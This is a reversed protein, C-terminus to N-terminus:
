LCANTSICPFISFHPCIFLLAVCHFFTQSQFLFNQHGSGQEAHEEARSIQNERYMQALQRSFIHERRQDAEDDGGYADGNQAYGGDAVGVGVTQLRKGGLYSPFVAINEGTKQVQGDARAKGNGSAGGGGKGGADGGHQSATRFRQREQNERQDKEGHNQQKREPRCTNGDPDALDDVGNKQDEQGNQDDGGQQAGGSLDGTDRGIRGIFGASQEGAKNLAVAGHIGNGTQGEADHDNIDDTGHTHLLVAANCLIHKGGANKGTNEHGDNINGGDDHASLGTAEKFGGFVAANRQCLKGAVIQTPGAADNQGDGDGKGTQFGGDAKHCATGIGEGTHEGLPQGVPCPGHEKRYEGKHDGVKAQGLQQFIGQRNQHEEIGKGNGQDDKGKAASQKGM